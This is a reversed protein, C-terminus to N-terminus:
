FKFLFLAYGKEVMASALLIKALYIVTRGITQTLHCLFIGQKFYTQDADSEKTQDLLLGLVIIALHCLVIGQKFYTQDADSEKTLDLLLGLVIIALHCLVVGQKFYTQDADFEKTQDLLM